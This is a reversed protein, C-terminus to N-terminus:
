DFSSMLSPVTLLELKFFIIRMREQREPDAGTGALVAAKVAPVLVNPERCLNRVTREKSRINVGNVNAM